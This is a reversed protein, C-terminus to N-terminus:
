IRQRPKQLEMLLNEVQKELENVLTHTEKIEENADLSGKAVLLAVESQLSTVTDQTENINQEKKATAKEKHAIVEFHSETIRALSFAEELTTPRGSLVEKHSSVKLGSIYNMTLLFESRGMVRSILMEFENHYEAVTGRQLLRSLAYEVEPDSGESAM